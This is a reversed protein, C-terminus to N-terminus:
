TRRQAELGVYSSLFSLFNKIDSHKTAPSDNFFVISTYEKPRLLFFANSITESFILKDAIKIKEEAFFRCHQEAGLLCFKVAAKEEAGIARSNQTRAFAGRTWKKPDSLLEIYCATLKKVEASFKEKTTITPM